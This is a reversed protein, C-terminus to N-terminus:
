SGNFQIIKKVRSNWTFKKVDKKANAGLYSYKKSNLIKMIYKKWSEFDNPNLLVSNYNKKLIHRYVKLNSAIITKGSAMYEFMKLPSFYNEVFIDKMLVGVKKNYPMLLIQYKSLKKGIKNYTLYGKMKMNDPLSNLIKKDNLTNLNGYLHFNIKPMLESLKHIIEFGKGPAFSGSYVCTNKIIKRSKYNFDRLEVADELILTKKNDLKLKSKLKKNLTIFKLSKKIFNFKVILFLFKTFGSIETHVELINKIKFFSLLISPLISRSIILNDSNKKLYNILYLSFLIRYFFNMKRKKKFFSIFNIKKKLLYDKKIKIKKYKKDVFPLILEVKYGIESLAGCMKLVHVSYASMNPLSFEAIYILKKKNIINM